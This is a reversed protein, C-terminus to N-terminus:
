HPSSLQIFEIRIVDSCFDVFYKKREKSQKDDREIRCEDMCENMCEHM